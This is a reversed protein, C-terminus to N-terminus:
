KYFTKLQDIDANLGNEPLCHATGANFLWRFYRHTFSSATTIVRASLEDDSFSTNGEFHLARVQQGAPRGECSIDEQARAAAPRALCVAWVVAIGLWRGPASRRARM